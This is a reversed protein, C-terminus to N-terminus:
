TCHHCVPSVSLFLSLIQISYNFWVQTTLSREVMGANARTTVHGAFVSEVSNFFSSKGASIEGVLLVNINDVGADKTLKHTKIEDKM